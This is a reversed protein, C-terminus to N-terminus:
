ISTKECKRRPASIPHRQMTRRGIPWQPPESPFLCFSRRDFRPVFLPVPQHVPHPASMASVISTANPAKKESAKANARAEPLYAQLVAQVDLVRREVPRTGPFRASNADRASPHPLETSGLWKRIEPLAEAPLDVFRAGCRKRTKDVWTIEAAFEMKAISSDLFFFRIPGGGELSTACYLALGGESLDLVIAGNGSSLNAYLLWNLNTRAKTRREEPSRTNALTATAFQEAALPM